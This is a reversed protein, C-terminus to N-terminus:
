NKASFNFTVRSKGPVNSGAASAPKYRWKM